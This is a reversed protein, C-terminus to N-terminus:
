TKNEPEHTYGKPLGERGPSALEVPTEGLNLELGKWARKSLYDLAPSDMTSVISRETNAVSLALANEDRTEERIRERPMKIEGDVLSVRPREEEEGIDQPLQTGLLTQFDIQYEGTWEKDSRLAIELEFPTIVPKYFERSDIMSNEPCAVLVFMDVHEFNALKVPNLKGVIFLYYKKRALSILKKLREIIELYRGVGLTGAVIGYVTSDKAKEM